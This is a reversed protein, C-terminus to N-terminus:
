FVESEKVISKLEAYPITFKVAGRAYAAIEYPNYYFFLGERTFVFNAPLFFRHDSLFYGATELNIEASLKETRRFHTEVLKLLASSDAIYKEMEVEAGTAADFAHFSRFSNPHAGGTFYVHDLQYFFVKPTVMVTDGKLDVEWCGPADPFDKKFGTYDKQFLNFAGQLSKSAAPDSAIHASDGHQNVRNILKESLIKNIEIGARSSDQSKWVAVNVAVGNGYGVTDCGGFSQKEISGKTLRSTEAEQENKSSQTCGYIVLGAILFLGKRILMM